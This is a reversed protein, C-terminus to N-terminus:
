SFKEPARLMAGLMRGVEECATLLRGHVDNKLYGFDKAMDLWVQTETASGDADILHRVFLRRYSRKRYGEAINTSVSRSSRRIQDTLFFIEERPFSRSCQFIEKALSYAKQFVHLDRFSAM